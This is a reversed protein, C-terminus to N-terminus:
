RRRVTRGFSPLEVAAITKIKKQSRLPYVLPSPSAKGSSSLYAPLSPGSATAVPAAVSAALPTAAPTVMVPAPAAPAAAVVPDAVPPREFVPVPDAPEPQAAAPQAVSAIPEGWPSPETFLSPTVVTPTASEPLSAPELWPDTAVSAAAVEPAPEPGPEPHSVSQAVVPALPEAIDILPAPSKPLDRQPAPVDPQPAPSPGTGRLGRLLHTLSPNSTSAGPGASWPQIQQSRPMAIPQGPEEIASTLLQGQVATPNTTAAGPTMNLCKELAAKFQLTYRQQRHLRAKLDRCTEEAQHLATNKESFRQQLLTCERELQAVRQQSVELEAQLTENHITTRRLGDNAIDLESLLQAIQQQVPGPTATVPLAGLHSQAQNREVEAQLAVQSRELDDELETVRLLLADNCQNLDQILQVLNEPDPEIAGDATEAAVSPVLEHQLVTSIDDAEAAFGSDDALPLQGPLTVTEWGDGMQTPPYIIVEEGSNASRNGQPEPSASSATTDTM